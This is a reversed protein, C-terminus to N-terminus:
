RWHRRWPYKGQPEDSGSGDGIRVAVCASASGVVGVGDFLLRWACGSVMSVSCACLDVHGGDELVVDGIDLNVALM